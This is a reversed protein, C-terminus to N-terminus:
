KVNTFKNESEFLKIVAQELSTKKIERRSNWFQPNYKQSAIIEKLNNSYKMKKKGVFLKEGINFCSAKTTVQKGQYLYAGLLEVSEVETFDGNANAITKHESDIYITAFPLVENTEADVINGSYQQALTKMSFIALMFFFLMYRNINIGITNKIQNM